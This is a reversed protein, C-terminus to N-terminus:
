HQEVFFIAIQGIGFVKCATGNSQRPLDWVSYRHMDGETAMGYCCPSLHSLGQWILDGFRPPSM